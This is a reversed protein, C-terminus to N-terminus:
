SLDDHPETYVVSHLEPASDVILSAENAIQLLKIVESIHSPDRSSSRYQPTGQATGSPRAAGTLETMWQRVMGGGIQNPHETDSPPTEGGPTETAVPPRATPRPVTRPTRATSITEDLLSSSEASPRQEPLVRNTRRISRSEGLLPAIWTQAFRVLRHPIRWGKLQLLESRYLLGTLLGIVALILTAPLHSISVQTALAYVWIKDSMSVGFIKFHYAEPVLRIYQHIISFIIATPGSPVYNLLAETYTSMRLALMVVFTFMTNLLTALLVFSAYKVSGFTREIPIAINYLLLEALFLDSSNACAVHHSFLRWYQHHKSLHPVLQLHVYHKVDFIGVAISTLALSLM